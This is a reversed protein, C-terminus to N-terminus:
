GLARAKAYAAIATPSLGMRQKVLDRACLNEMFLARYAEQREASTSGLGLYVFHPTLWNCAEGNAHFRYSSWRYKAANDVLAARVPNQEIYRLCTLLYVDDHIEIATYRGTWLTGIRGHRRNYSLVYQRGIDRMMLELCRQKPPTVLAHYHNSMLVFNHVAVKYRRAVTELLALFRERDDDDVFIPGRNNGRRIVHVTAGDAIIRSM